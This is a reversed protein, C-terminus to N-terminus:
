REAPMQLLGYETTHDLQEVNFTLEKTSYLWLLNEQKPRWFIQLILPKKNNPKVQVKGSCVDHPIKGVESCEFQVSIVKGVFVMDGANSLSHWCISTFFLVASIYKM